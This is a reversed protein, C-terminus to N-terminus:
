GQDGKKDLSRKMDSLGVLAAFNRVGQMYANVYVGIVYQNAAPKDDTERGDAYKSAGELLARTSAVQALVLDEAPDGLWPEAVDALLDDIAQKREDSDM